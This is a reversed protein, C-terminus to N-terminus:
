PAWRAAFCLVSIIRVQGRGVPLLKHPVLGGFLVITQGAALKVLHAGENPRARVASLSEGIRGCYLALAGAPDDAPANDHLVTIVAVDCSDVDLHLDLFDGPRVYYSYSGRNGSAFIPVGCEASLRRPLWASRYLADQVPGAQSTSFRRRPKGGRGDADDDDWSEQLVADKYLTLAEGLLQTRTVADPLDTYIRFGGTALM